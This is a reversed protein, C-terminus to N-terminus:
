SSPLNPSPIGIWRGTCAANSSAGHKVIATAVARALQLRLREPMESVPSSSGDRQTKYAGMLHNFLEISTAIGM